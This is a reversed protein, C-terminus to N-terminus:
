LTAIQYVSVLTVLLGFGRILYVKASHSELLKPKFISALVTVLFVISANSLSIATSVTLNTEFAKFVAIGGINGIFSVVIVPLIQKRKYNLKPKKIALFPLLWLGIFFNLWFLAQLSTIEKLALGVQLNSAAHLIQTLVILITGKKLLSKISMREDLTVLVVGGILTLLWFYNQNSFREGLFLYALIAVFVAQLQFLPAFSSADMTFVGLYFLYYGLIFVFSSGLMLLLTKTTIEFGVTFALLVAFLLSGLMFFAQLSDANKISHKSAYKNILGVLAFCVAGFAAYYIYSM